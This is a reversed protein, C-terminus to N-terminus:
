RYLIMDQNMCNGTELLILQDNLIALQKKDEEERYRQGSGHLDYCRCFEKLSEKFTQQQLSSEEVMSQQLSLYEIYSFLNPPSVYDELLKSNEKAIDNKQTQLIDKRVELLKIEMEVDALKSTKVALEGQKTHLLDKTQELNSQCEVIKAKVTCIAM